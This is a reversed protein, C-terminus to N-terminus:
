GLKREQKDWIDKQGDCQVDKRGMKYTMGERETSRGLVGDSHEM